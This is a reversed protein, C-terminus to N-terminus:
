ATQFRISRENATCNALGGAATRRMVVASLADLATMCSLNSDTARYMKEMGGAGRPSVIKDSGLRAGSDNAM